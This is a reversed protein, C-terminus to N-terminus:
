CICSGGIPELAADESLPATGLDGVGYVTPFSEAVIRKAGAAIAANLVNATGHIRLKNTAALEGVGDPAAGV